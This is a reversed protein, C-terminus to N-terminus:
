AWGLTRSEWLVPYFALNTTSSPVPLMLAFMHQPPAPQPSLLTLVAGSGCCRCQVIPVGKARPTTGAPELARRQLTGILTHSRLRLNPRGLFRTMGVM